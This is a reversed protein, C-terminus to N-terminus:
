CPNSNSWPATSEALFRRVAGSAGHQALFVSAALITRQFIPDNALQRPFVPEFSLLAGATALPGSAADLRQGIQHSLPDQISFPIGADTKGGQWRIWGAISLALADIGQRSALRDALTALLRQPLKQSGDMAIQHTRHELSANAFRAMLDHRYAKLDLGPPPTLTTEAEDWLREVYAAFCPEAVVRHMFELGALGGLYALASHAGNLMRLKAAEFLGVDKTVQVGLREFDPREGAFRDEIVWQTFPETKVMGQDAVGMRQALAQLDEVTTAPVIRDIMTQPFACTGEIWEALAPDHRRGLALVADRIRTGNQPLNDCSIVTLPGLGRARRLALGAALLGPATRPTNLSALDGAVDPDEELLVGSAPDLRYGKETITLTVIHTDTGAIAEVAAAPGEPAVLVDLIAGVVRTRTRECDRIVLSYLGDQPNLQDRVGASRLSVGRVGWRQDGAALARDFVDAQHARHFAGIGLHIVGPKVRSRDYSPREIEDPLAGLTANSLRALPLPPTM